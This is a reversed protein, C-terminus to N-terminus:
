SVNDTQRVGSDDTGTREEDPKYKNRKDAVKSGAHSQRNTITNSGSQAIHSRFLDKGCICTRQPNTTYSHRANDANKPTGFDNSAGYLKGGGFETPFMVFYKDGFTGFLIKGHAKDHQCKNRNQYSHQEEDLKTHGSVNVLCEYRQEDNEYNCEEKGRYGCVCDSNYPAIRYRSHRQHCKNEGANGQYADPQVAFFPHKGCHDYASNDAGCQRHSTAKNGVKLYSVPQSGSGLILLTPLEEASGYRCESNGANHQYKIFCIPKYPFM